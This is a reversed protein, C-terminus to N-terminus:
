RGIRLPCSSITPFGRCKHRKKAMTAVLVLRHGVRVTSHAYRKGKVGSCLSLVREEVKKIREKPSSCARYAVTSLLMGRDVGRLDDSRYVTQTPKTLPGKGSCFFYGLNPGRFEGTPSPTM